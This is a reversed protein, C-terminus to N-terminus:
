PPLPPTRPPHPPSSTYSTHSRSDSYAPPLPSQAAASTELPNAPRPSSNHHLNPKVEEAKSDNSNLKHLISRAAELAPQPLGALQAVKLAHSQRNVGPRLRHQFTFSGSADEKIDTCYRGLRPWDSALDALTHFHTAFLTRCKNISHLHHLAGYAVSMGDQPTTGRGVEDMIVFSRPTAQRLIAATELMEVMFTSQDRFLDDAAGIRSFVQDVLGIRAYEAPIFSGTQALITILANQRLFTSKGAMNPGTVLWMQEKSDLVLDNSVFSRGQEELGVKVTPHRGGVINHYTSNDLVPKTWKEEAALSAFGTAVDLESMLAANRRLKVLNRIVQQRLNAFLRQEETRVYTRAQDMKNGLRTWESVYLSKTTQRASAVTAKIADLKAQDLGKAGKVHCHHGLGPSWKLTLSAASLEKRLRAELADKEEKLNGLNDHLRELAESADKRMIWVEQMDLDTFRAEAIRAKQRASRPILDVEEPADLKIAEEALLTANAAEDDEQQHMTRLGEEDIARSILESLALPGALDFRDLLTTIPSAEVTVSVKDDDAASKLLAQIGNTEGIAKALDLMDDADGKNVTFKQVIRQVDYTRKLREILDERLAESSVFASVLDLRENIETLSTSPTTLRNRLLRAGGGTVTRKVAHFLSGKGLGDRATELIELGRLSHRDILLTHDVQRQQPPQLRLQVAHLRTRVYDLLQHGALKEPQSFATEAAKSIEGDIMHNWQSMSMFGSQTEHYTVLDQHQGVVAEVESKLESSIEHDLIIERAAIRAVISGLTSRHATQTFFDGTSLDIWAVGLDMQSPNPHPNVSEPASDNLHISLLYNNQNPDLFKEDILTGPSVIRSVQRHFMSGNSKTMSSSAIPVEESIAVYKNLDQVLVKLYRDLQWFPFGSMPVPAYRSGPGRYTKKINLQPAYEDAHEFYLEYFNGVRTLVVCNPFKDMNARVGQLLPPYTSQQVDEDLDSLPEAVIAGQEIDKLKKKTM